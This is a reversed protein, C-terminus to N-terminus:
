KMSVKSNEGPSGDCKKQFGGLVMYTKVVNSIKDTGSTFM